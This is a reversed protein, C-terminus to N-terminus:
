EHLTCVMEIGENSRASRWVTNKCILTVWGFFVVKLVNYGGRRIKILFIIILVPLNIQNKKKNGVGYIEFEFIYCIM